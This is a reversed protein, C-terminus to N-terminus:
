ISIFSKVVPLTRMVYSAAGDGSLDRSKEFGRAEIVVGDNM